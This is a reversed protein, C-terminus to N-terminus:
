EFVFISFLNDVAEMKWIGMQKNVEQVKTEAGM